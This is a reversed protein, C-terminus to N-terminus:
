PACPFIRAIRIASSSSGPAAYAVSGDPYTKFPQYINIPVDISFAPSVDSGDAADFVQATITSGSGWGAVMLGSGYAALKSHPSSGLTSTRNVTGNDFHILLVGGNDDAPFSYPGVVLQDDCDLRAIYVRSDNSMWALWSGGAPIAAIMLPKLETESANNVVPVGVDVNSVRVQPASCVGDPPTACGATPVDDPADSFNASTKVGAVV